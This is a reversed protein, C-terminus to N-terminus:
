LIERDRVVAAVDEEKGKLESLRARWGEVSEAYGKLAGDVRVFVGDALSLAAHSAPPPSAAAFATFANLSASSAALAALLSKHYSGEASHLAALLRSDPARHPM